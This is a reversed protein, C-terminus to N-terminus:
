SGSAGGEALEKILTNREILLKRLYPKLVLADLPAIGTSFEFVDRMATGGAAPGFFHDHALRRFPGHVMEDRFMRPPDAASITMSLRRRLGFHRAEWTVSDGLALVGSTVGAVVREGTREMSRLHLDVSLSLEYCREVPAAITTELEIRTM